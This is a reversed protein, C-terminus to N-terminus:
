NLVKFKIMNIIEIFSELKALSCLGAYLVIGLIIQTSILIYDNPFQILAVAFAVGGIICSFIFVIIIDGLQQLISYDLLKGVYYSNLYYAILSTGFQGIIMATIGWRYTVVIAIVAIIKKAIELKLFLDSRGISKLVNLNIVHLPYLIFVLCLLQLYPVCPLWKEGILISVLPRAIVILGIMVPFTLLAMMSLAKKIGTKLRIKDNQISSFVPFTVRAVATSVNNVPLYAFQQARSYFGLDTPSFIKGIVVLYINQFFTELLGSFLLKSGFSFLTKLSRFSFEGSPRWRILFWLLCTRSFNYLLSQAVLSWVGYGNYAMVIGILGSLFTAMLSIKLQNKFDVKKVLLSTQILAFSNIILNLSLVRTLPVLIPTNYFDAIWPAGICLLGAGIGGVFINFYFISNEDVQTADQKQILASGFGSDIFSQAVAMFITLMAILGFEAPLLLRALIITIIFQIVNQGIREFFSWFIAAITKNKLRELM